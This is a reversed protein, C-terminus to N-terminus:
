MLTKELTPEELEDCDGSSPPKRSQRATISLTKSSQPKLPNHPTLTVGGSDKDHKRPNKLKHFRSTQAHSYMTPCMRTRFIPAAFSYSGSHTYISRFLKLLTHLTHLWLYLYPLWTYWQSIALGVTPLPYFQHCLPFIWSLRPVQPYLELQEM